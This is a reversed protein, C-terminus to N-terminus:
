CDPMGPCAEKLPLILDDNILVIEFKNKKELLSENETHNEVKKMNGM